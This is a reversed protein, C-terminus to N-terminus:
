SLKEKRSIAGRTETSTAPNPADLYDQIRNHLEEAETVDLGSAWDLFNTISELLHRDQKAIAEGALISDLQGQAGYGLSQYEQCVFIIDQLQM